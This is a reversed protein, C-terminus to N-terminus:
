SDQFTSSEILNQHEATIQNDSNFTLSALVQFFDAALQLCLQSFDVMLKFFGLLHYPFKFQENMKLGRHDIIIPLQHNNLSRKLQLVSSSFVELLKLSRYSFNKDEKNSTVSNITTKKM